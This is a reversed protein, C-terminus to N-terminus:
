RRSASWRGAQGINQEALGAVRSPPIFFAGDLLPDVGFGKLDDELESTHRQSECNQAGTSTNSWARRRQTHARTSKLREFPTQIAPATGGHTDRCCGVGNRTQRAITNKM